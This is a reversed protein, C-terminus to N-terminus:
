RMGRDLLTCLEQNIKFVSESDRGDNGISMNVGAVLEYGVEDMRELITCM